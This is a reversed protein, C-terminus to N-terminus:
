SARRRRTAEAAALAMLSLALAGPEPVQTGPPSTPVVDGARIAAVFFSDYTQLYANQRFGSGITELAWAQAAGNFTNPAAVDRAWYFGTRQAGDFQNEFTLADNNLDALISKWQNAAGAAQSGDGTPLLWGTLGSAAFGLSEALAQASGNSAAGDWFGTGSFNNLITIDLTTDYYMACKTTGGAGKATCTASATGDALRGQFVPTAQAASTLVVLGAAAAWSKMANM